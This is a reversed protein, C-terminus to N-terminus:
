LILDHVVIMKRDTMPLQTYFTVMQTPGSYSSGYQLELAQKTIFHATLHFHQESYKTLAHLITRLVHLSQYIDPCTTFTM